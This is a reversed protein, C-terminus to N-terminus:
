VLPILPDYKKEGIYEMAESKLRDCTDLWKPDGEGRGVIEEYWRKRREIERLSAVSIVSDDTVAFGAFNIGMDTPSKYTHMFNHDPIFYKVMGMIIEFADVDRNYNVSDVQYAKKHYIDPTNFDGIDATAAEYALNVPHGIPLNWIPFTEYKAYGSEIGYEHDMYIQGLCTSMKGSNSAAGTVIVLDKGIDIHDDRGYGNRSLINRTDHPYGDILYRHYIKLGINEARDVFDSVKSNMERESFNIVVKPRVGIEREIKGIMELASDTYTKDVNSLQRDSVIDRYGVCFLVEIIDNLSLFIDKKVTPSFGPLVRSGHADFLYKGGIELYLRGNGFKKIRELIHSKQTDFYKANDFGHRSYPITDSQAISLENEM